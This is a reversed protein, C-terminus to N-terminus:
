DIWLNNDKEQKHEYLRFVTFKDLSYNLKPFADSYENHKHGQYPYFIKKKQTLPNLIIKQVIDSRSGTNLFQNKSSNIKLVRSSINLLYLIKFMIFISIIIAIILLITLAIFLNGYM